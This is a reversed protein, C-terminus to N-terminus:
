KTKKPAPRTANWWRKWAAADDFEKETIEGLSTAARTRVEEDDDDLARVLPGIARRDKITGLLSATERRLIVDKGAVAALAAQLPRKDMMSLADRAATAVDKETDKLLEFLTPIVRPDSVESLVSAAAGRLHSNEDKVAALLVDAGPKGLKALLGAAEERFESKEDKLLALAPEFSRPDPMEILARLIASRVDKDEGPLAALLPAVARRDKREGLADAASARMDPESHKLTDLLSQFAEPGPTKGLAEVATLRLESDEDTLLPKLAAAARPDKANGLAAAACKRLAYSNEKLAVILAPVALQLSDGNSGHKELLCAARERIFEEKDKMLGIVLQMRAPTAPHLLGAGASATTTEDNEEERFAKLLEKVAGLQGMARAAVEGVSFSRGTIGALMGSIYKEQVMIGDDLLGALYPAAAAVGLNGLRHAGNARDAASDESYLLEIQKRAEPSFTKLNGKETTTQAALLATFALLFRMRRYPIVQAAPDVKEGRSVDLNVAPSILHTVVSLPM